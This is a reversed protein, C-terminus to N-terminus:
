RSGGTTTAPSSQMVSIFGSDQAIVIRHHTRADAAGVITTLRIRGDALRTSTVAPDDALRASSRGDADALRVRDVAADLTTIEIEMRVSGELPEAMIQTNGSTKEVYVSGDVGNDPAVIVLDGWTQM